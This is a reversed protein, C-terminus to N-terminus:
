IRTINTRMDNKYNKLSLYVYPAMCEEESLKKIEKNSFWKFDSINEGRSNQKEKSDLTVKGAFESVLFVFLLRQNKADGYQFIEKLVPDEAKLGVEEKIERVVCDELTEKPNDFTGKVLNWKPRDGAEYREKILLVEDKKNVIVAAVKVTIKM